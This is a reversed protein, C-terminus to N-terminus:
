KPRWFEWSGSGYPFREGGGAAIACPIGKAITCRGDDNHRCTHCDKKVKRSTVKSKKKANM